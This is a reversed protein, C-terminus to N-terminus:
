GPLRNAIIQAIQGQLGAIRGALSKAENENRVGIKDRELSRLKLRQRNPVALAGERVIVGTIEAPRDVARKEKHYRLGAGYLIEKIKWIMEEPVRRGSITVDDIYVSLICDNERAVSAIKEWADYFAYYAMIPSLPSGTPLHGECCALRALIAAVDPACRMVEHFFWYVRRQPTNPFYKKVDLSHIVRSERHRGANTVYSRGKVPCSLYDPPAIRSLLKAVRAQVRKLEQKPNEVQRTGGSKKAVEFYSYLKGQGTLRALDTESVNLLGALKRRSPLRYLPSSKLAYRKNNAM